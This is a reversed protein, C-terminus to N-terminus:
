YIGGTSNRAIATRPEPRASRQDASRDGPPPVRCAGSGVEVASKGTKRGSTALDDRLDLSWDAKLVLSM